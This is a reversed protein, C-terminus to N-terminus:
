MCNTLKITLHSGSLTFHWTAIFRNMTWCLNRAGAAQVHRTTVSVCVTADAFHSQHKCPTHLVCREKQIDRLTSVRMQHVLLHLSEIRYLQRERPCSLLSLRNQCSCLHVSRRDACGLCYSCGAYKMHHLRPKKIDSLLMTCQEKTLNLAARHSTTVSINSLMESTEFSRTEKMKLLCSIKLPSPVVIKRFTQFWECFLVFPTLDWLCSERSKHMSEALQLSRARTPMHIPIQPFNPFHFWHVSINSSALAFPILLQSTM